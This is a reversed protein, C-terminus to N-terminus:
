ILGAKQLSAKLKLTKDQDMAALPLRMTDTCLKMMGAAQKVPIPNTDIFLNNALHLYRNMLVSASKFDGDLCYRAIKATANPIVNSLVSVVGKGGM